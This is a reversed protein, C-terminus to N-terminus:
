GLTNTATRERRSEKRYRYVERTSVWWDRGRKEAKFSGNAIQHRLTSPALGLLEAAETLTM